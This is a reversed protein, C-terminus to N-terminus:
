DFVTGGARRMADALPMDFTALVAGTRLSLELYTADYTTLKHERALELISDRRVAHLVNDDDDVAISLRDLRTLYDDVQARTAVKRREGVLLANAVEIHWLSPVIIKTSAITVLVRDAREAEAPKEREFFWALALSADLVLAIM